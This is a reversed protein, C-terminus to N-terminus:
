TKEELVTAPSDIYTLVNNDIIEYNVKLIKKNLLLTKMQGKNEIKKNLVKIGEIFPLKKKGYYKYVTEKISWLLTSHKINNTNFIQQEKKSLFKHSIKQAKKAIKEVDISVNNKTSLIIGVFEKSHSIGIFENKLYPKCANNYSIKINLPSKKLTKLLIRTALWEKRRNKSKFKRYKNKEYDTLQDYIKNALEDVEESLKWIGIKATKKTYKKFVPM